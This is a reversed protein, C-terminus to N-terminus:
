LPTIATQATSAADHSSLQQNSVAYISGAHMFTRSIADGGSYEDGSSQAREIRGVETISDGAVRLVIAGSHYDYGYPSTDPSTNRGSWSGVLIALGTTPDWTFAHPDSGVNLSANESTWKALEKPATPDTTDYLSVKAGGNSGMETGDVGVGLLRGDGVPHLYNSFGPTKLEGLLHPAAPDTLDIVFLPDTNRFTVVYALNGVFRVGQITESPGLGDLHGVESLKDGDLRLTTLRSSQGGGPAIGITPMMCEADPPCSSNSTPSDLVPQRTTAIRLMGDAEDMAYQNIVTGPVRGSGQYVAPGAVSIDFRHVDTEPETSVARKSSTANQNTQDWRTTAVYLSTASAYTTEGDAIVSTASLSGLGDTITLVTLAGFGSFEVPHFVASCPVLQERAGQTYASPLWDEITSRAIIAKNAELATPESTPRDPTLFGLNAPSLSTTVIRVTGDARRSAVVSGDVTKSDTLTPQDAIAVETITTAPGSQDVPMPEVPMTSEVPLEPEIVDDVAGRKIPGSSGTSGSSGGAGNSFSPFGSSLVYAREGVVLLQSAGDPAPVSGLTTLTPSLRVVTLVSDHLVLARDGDLKVFDGEDVGVVQNNTGTDTSGADGSATSENATSPSAADTKLEGASAAARDETAYMPVAGGGGGNGLGYATVQRGAQDKIWALLDGCSDSSVLSAITQPHIAPLTTTSGPGATPTKSCATTALALAVGMTIILRKM